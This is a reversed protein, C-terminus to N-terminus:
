WAFILGVNAEFQSLHSKYDYTATSTQISDLATWFFRGELRLGIHEVFFAKVGGGLSVSFQDDTGAGKFKPNISAVGASVVFFPTVAPRGFQALLGLHLYTIDTSISKIDPGFIGKDVFLDSDQTNALLELQLNESLPIDFALGYALGDDVELNSALKPNATEFTGGMHYSLHPTLEFRYDGDAMAASPVALLCLALALRKM